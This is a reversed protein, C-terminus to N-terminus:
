TTIAVRSAAKEDVRGSKNSKPGPNKWKVGVDEAIKSGVEHLKNQNVQAAAMASELTTLPNTNIWERKTDKGRNGDGGGTTWRGHDDRPEDPDFKQLEISFSPSRCKV